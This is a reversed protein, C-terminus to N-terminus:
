LPYGRIKFTWLTNQITAVPVLSQLKSEIPTLSVKHFVQLSIVIWNRSLSAITSAYHSVNRLFSSQFSPPLCTRIWQRVARGLLAIVRSGSPRVLPILLPAILIFLAKCDPSRCSHETISYVERWFSRINTWIRVGTLPMYAVFTQRHSLFWRAIPGDTVLFHLSANALRHPKRLWPCCCRNQAIFCDNLSVSKIIPYPTCDPLEITQM